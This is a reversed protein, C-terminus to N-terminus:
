EKKKNKPPKHKGFRTAFSPSFYIRDEGVVIENIGQSIMFESANDKLQKYLAEARLAGRVALKADEISKIAPIEYAHNAACKEVYPCNKCHQGPM